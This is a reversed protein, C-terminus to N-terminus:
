AEMQACSYVGNGVNHQGIPWLRFRLWGFFSSSHLFTYYSSLSGIVILVESSRNVYSM